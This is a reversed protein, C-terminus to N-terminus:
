TAEHKRGFIFAIIVGVFGISWAPIALVASISRALVGPLAHAMWANFADASHGDIIRWIAEFSRLTVQGQHELTTLMDAGLLMLAVAVIFLGFFSMFARM